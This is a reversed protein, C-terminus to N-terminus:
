LTKTMILGDEYPNRYFNKRRGALAFGFKSYLDIASLNGERVELSVFALNEERAKEIVREILAKAVGRRRYPAKVAVNAIYGEDVCINFGIYGLAEGNEMAVYFYAGVKSLEREFSDLSWPNAFCEDEIEKVSYINQRNMLDIKM